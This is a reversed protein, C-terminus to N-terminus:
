NIKRYLTSLWVGSLLLPPVFDIALTLQEQDSDVVSFGTGSNGLADITDVSFTFIEATGTWDQALSITWLCTTSSGLLQPESISSGAPLDPSIHLTLGSEVAVSENFNVNLWTDAGPRTVAPSLSGLVVKPASSDLIASARYVQSEYGYRDLFKVFVSYQQEPLEGTKGIALDWGSYRCVDLLLGDRDQQECALQDGDVLLLEVLNESVGADSAMMVSVAQASELVVTANRLQELNVMKKDTGDFELMVQAEVALAEPVQLIMPVDVHTAAGAALSFSESIGYYLIPLTPNQGERVEIVLYRDTGNPVDDMQIQVPANVEYSVPGASALIRGAQVPVDREEVRAWVWVEGHPPTDWTFDMSFRGPEVGCSVCCFLIIAAFIDRKRMPSNSVEIQPDVRNCQMCFM